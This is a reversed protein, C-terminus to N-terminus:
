RVETKVFEMGTTQYLDLYTWLIWFPPIESSQRSHLQVQNLSQKSTNQLTITM